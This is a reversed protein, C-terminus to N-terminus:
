KGLSIIFGIGASQTGPIKKNNTRALGDATYVIAIAHKRFRSGRIFSRIGFATTIAGAVTVLEGTPSNAYRAEGWSNYAGTNVKMNLGTFLLAVGGCFSALGGVRAKNARQLYIAVEQQQQPSLRELMSSVIRQAHTTSAIAIVILAIIIRKM